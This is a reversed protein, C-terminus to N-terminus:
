TLENSLRCFFHLTAFFCTKKEYFCINPRERDTPSDAIDKKRVEFFSAAAIGLALKNALVSYMEIMM